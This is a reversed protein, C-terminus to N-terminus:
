PKQFIGFYMTNEHKEKINILGNKNMLRSIESPQIGHHPKTPERFIFRGGPKLKQSLLTIIEEHRSVPIDHIVYTMTIIDISEDAIDSQTIDSNFFVVHHWKKFRKKVQKIWHASTDLCILTGNSSLRNLIPKSSAGGGCGFDLVIENGQINMQDVYKEYRARALGYCYLREIVQEIWTPHEFSM